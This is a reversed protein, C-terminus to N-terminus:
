CALEIPFQVDVAQVAASGAGDDQGVEALDVEAALVGVRGQRGPAVEKVGGLADAGDLDGFGDGLHAGAQAAELGDGGGLFEVLPGGSHGSGEGAAGLPPRVRRGRQRGIASRRSSEL